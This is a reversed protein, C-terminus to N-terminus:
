GIAEKYREFVDVLRKEQNANFFSSIIVSLTKNDSLYVYKLHSPLFKLELVLPSEISPIFPKVERNLLDLSEFHKDARLPQREGM